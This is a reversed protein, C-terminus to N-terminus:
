MVRLNKVLPQVKKELKATELKKSGKVATRKAM